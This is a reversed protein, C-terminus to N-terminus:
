DYDILPFSSDPEFKDDKRYFFIEDDEEKKEWITNIGFGKEFNLNINSEIDINKNEKEKLQIEKLKDLMSFFQGVLEVKLSFLKNYDKLLRVNTYKSLECFEKITSNVLNPEKSNEELVQEKSAIDYDSSSFIVNNYNNLDILSFAVKFNNYYDDSQNIPFYYDTNIEQNKLLKTIGKNLVIIDIQEFQNRILTNNKKIKKIDDQINIDAQVVMLTKKNKQHLIMYGLLRHLIHKPSLRPSIHITYKTPIMLTLHLARQLQISNIINKLKHFSTSFTNNKFYKLDPRHFYLKNMGEITRHDTQILENIKGDNFFFLKMMNNILLIWLNYFILLLILIFILFIFLKIDMFNNKLINSLNIININKIM